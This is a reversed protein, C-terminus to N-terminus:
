EDDGDETAIETFSFSAITQQWAPTTAAAFEAASCWAYDAAVRVLGHHVPNTHTYHLRALYSKEFTLLTERYNQWVQRGPTSDLRNVARATDAHLHTLWRRLSEANDEAAPSHAVIHYHNALVAWAELRWGYHAALAHLRDRLLTLREPGAFCPTRARTRATVFYVGAAALRHPPAHPWDRTGPGEPPELSVAPTIPHLPSGSPKDGNEIPSFRDSCIEDVDREFGASL